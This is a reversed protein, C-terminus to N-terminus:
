RLIINVIRMIDTVTILLDNNCDALQFIFSAPNGGLIYNVILMIDSVNIKGDRNVDGMREDEVFLDFHCDELPSNELDSCVVSANDISGQYIDPIITESAHCALRIVEGEYGIFASSDDWRVSLHYSGTDTQDVQILANNSLLRSSFNYVYNKENQDYMLSIGMPLHLDFQYGLIGLEATQLGVSLFFAAGPYTETSVTTFQEPIPLITNFNNWYETEQYATLSGYPVYLPSSSYIGSSFVAGTLAPVVHAYCTIKSLSSCGWFANTGIKEVLHPISLSKLSQCNYFANGGITTVGSPINVNELKRCGYFLSSSMETIKESLIVSELASCGRFTYAGISTVEGSMEVSTLLSCGYFAYGDITLVSSPITYSGSKGAPFCILRTMQKNFLVGDVSKYYPNTEAVDIHTLQGCGAFQNYGINSLSSPLSVSTLLTSAFFVMDDISSVCYTTEQYIVYEPIVIDGQYGTGFNFGDIILPDAEMVMVTGDPNIKYNIGDM